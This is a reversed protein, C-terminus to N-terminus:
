FFFISIYSDLFVLFFPPIHWVKERKQGRRTEGNSRVVPVPETKLLLQEKQGRSSHTTSIHQELILRSFEGGRPM